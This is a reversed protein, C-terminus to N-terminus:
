RCKLRQQVVLLLLADVTFTGESEKEILAATKLLQVLEEQLVAVFAYEVSNSADLSVQLM